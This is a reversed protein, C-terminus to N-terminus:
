AARRARVVTDHVVIVTGDPGPTERPRAEDVDVVWADDSLIATVDAGTFLVDSPPRRIAPNELDSPHHGVVLLTGGPAVARALRRHLTTRRLAPFHVFQASVLDYANAEPVWDNVDAHVWQIRSAIDSGHERAATAARELAVTSIDVAAVHWGHRSLWVADAGEGCGVDLAVGPVLDGAEAVLQPNPLGSWVAANSRYRADWLAEDTESEARGGTPRGPHRGDARGESPM